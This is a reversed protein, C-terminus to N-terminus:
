LGLFVHRCKISLHLYTRIINKIYETPLHENSDADAGDDM